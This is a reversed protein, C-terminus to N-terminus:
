HARKITVGCTLIECLFFSFIIASRMNNCMDYYKIITNHVVPIRRAASIVRM